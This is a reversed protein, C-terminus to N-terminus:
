RVESALVRAFDAFVANTWGFGEVTGYYGGEPDATPEAVNYKERLTGRKAFDAACTDCWRRRVDAAEAAFGYRDLGAAM